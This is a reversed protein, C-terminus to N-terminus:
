SLNERIFLKPEGKGMVRRKDLFVGRWDFLKGDMNAGRQFDFIEATNYNFLGRRIEITGIEQGLYLMM